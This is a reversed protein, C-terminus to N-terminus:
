SQVVTLADNANDASDLALGSLEATVTGGGQPASIGTVRFKQQALTYTFRNGATNGFVVVLNRTTFRRNTGLQRVMDRRMRVTVKTLINYDGSIADTMGNNFLEDKVKDYNRSVTCEFGTVPISASDLTLSGLKSSIPSGATTPTPAFPACPSSAAPTGWGAAAADTLIDTAYDVSDIRYGSGGNDDGDATVISDAMFGDGENAALTLTTATNSQIVGYGTHIFGQGEGSFSWKPPEGGTATTKWEDCICGYMDERYMLQQANFCRTLTAAENAQTSITTWTVDSGGITPPGLVLRLPVNLDPVTTAVGSPIMYSALDWLYEGAMQIEDDYPVTGLKWDDRPQEDEKVNFTSSLIRAADAGAPPVFGGPTSELNAFFIQHHGQIHPQQLGM